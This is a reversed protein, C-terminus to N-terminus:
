IHAVFVLLVAKVLQFVTVLFQSVVAFTHIGELESYAGEFPVLFLVGVYRTGEVHVGPGVRLNKPRAGHLKFRRVDGEEGFM